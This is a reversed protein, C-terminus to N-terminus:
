EQGVIGGSDIDIRGAARELEARLTAPIPTALTRSLAGRDIANAICDSDRCVYAGRGNARGAADFLIGGNPSRVV